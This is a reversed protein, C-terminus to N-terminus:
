EFLIVKEKQMFTIKFQDFVDARGLLLPVHEIQAWAIKAPFRKNGIIMDLIVYIVGGVGNLGQVEPIEKGTPNIGLYRGLRYPIITYDAGSDIYMYAIVERNNFGILTVEAVPRFITKGDALSEARYRFKIM